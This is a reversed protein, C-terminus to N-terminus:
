TYWISTKPQTYMDGPIPPPFNFVSYPSSMQINIDPFAPQPFTEAEPIYWKSPNIQQQKPRYPVRPQGTAWQQQRQATAGQQKKIYGYSDVLGAKVAESYPSGEGGDGGDATAGAGTDDPTSFSLQKTEDWTWQGFTKELGWSLLDSMMFPDTYGVFAAASSGIQALGGGLLPFGLFGLVAGFAGIGTTEYIGGQEFAREWGMKQARELAAVSLDNVTIGPGLEMGVNAFDDNRGVGYADAEYDSTDNTRGVGYADAEYDGATYGDGGGGGAGGPGDSDAGSHDYCLALPGDYEFSEEELIDWTDINFRIKTYIKVV